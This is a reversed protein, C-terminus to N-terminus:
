GKGKESEVSQQASSSLQSDINQQSSAPQQSSVSSAASSSWPLLDYVSHKVNQIQEDAVISNNITQLYWSRIVAYANGGFIRIFIATIIIISCVTIQIITLLRTSIKKVKKKPKKYVTEYDKDYYDNM